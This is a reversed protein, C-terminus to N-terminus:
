CVIVSITAFPMPVSVRQITYGAVFPKIEWKQDDSVFWLYPIGVYMGGEKRSIKLLAAVCNERTSM